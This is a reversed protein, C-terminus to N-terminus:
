TSRGQARRVPAPQARRVEGARRPLRGRDPSAQATLQRARDMLSRSGTRPPSAAGHDRPVEQTRPMGAINRGQRLKALQVEARARLADLEPIPWRRSARTPRSRRHRAGPSDLLRRATSTCPAPTHGGVRRDGPHVRRRRLRSPMPHDVAAHVPHVPGAQRTRDDVLTFPDLRTTWQPPFTLDPRFPLRPTSGTSAHVASRGVDYPYVIWYWDLAARYDGASQLRQALLLPVVWFAERAAGVGPLEEGLPGAPGDPARGVPAPDPLAPRTIQERGPVPRPARGGARRQVPRRRPDSDFLADLPSQQRRRRRAGAADPRPAARPVPVGHDGVALQGLEGMWAWASTFGDLDAADLDAPPISRRGARRVAEGVAAVPRERDAQRIRTTRLTGGALVDVLFRASM